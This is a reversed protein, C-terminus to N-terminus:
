YRVGLGLTTHASVFRGTAIPGLGEVEFRPRASLPLDLGGDLMLELPERVMFALQVAAGGALWVAYDQTAVAIGDVEGASRLVTLGVCPLIRLRAGWEMCGRARALQSSFRASAGAGLDSTRAFLYAFGLEAYFGAVSLGARLGLGAAPAPLGLSYVGGFLGARLSLPEAEPAPTEKDPPAPDSPKDQTTAPENAASVADKANPKSPDAPKSPGKAKGADTAARAAPADILTPDVALAILWAGADTLAACDAARLTRAARHGNANVVLTLVYGESAAPAIAGSARLRTGNAQDALLAAVRARVVDVGPCREPARWDIDTDIQAGCPAIWAFLGWLVALVHAFRRPVLHILVKM